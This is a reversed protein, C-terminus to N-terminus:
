PLSLKIDSCLSLSKGLPHSISSDLSTFPTSLFSNFLVLKSFSHALGTYWIYAFASSASFCYRFAKLLNVQSHEALYQRRGAFIHWDVIAVVAVAERHHYPAQGM